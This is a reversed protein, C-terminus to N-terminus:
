WDWNKYDWSNQHELLEGDLLQDAKEKAAKKFAKDWGARNSRGSRIVLHNNKVELEVECTLGTEDLIAKPICIGQSDIRIIQTKM